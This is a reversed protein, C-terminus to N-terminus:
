PIQAEGSQHARDLLTERQLQIVNRQNIWMRVFEADSRMWMALIVGPLCIAIALTISFCVAAVGLAVSLFGIRLAWREQIEARRLEDAASGRIERDPGNVSDM